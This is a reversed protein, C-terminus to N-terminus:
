HALNLLLIQGPNRSIRALEKLIPVRQKTIDVEGRGNVNKSANGDANLNKTSKGNSGVLQIGVCEVTYDDHHHDDDDKDSVPRWNTGIFEGFLDGKRLLYSEIEPPVFLLLM